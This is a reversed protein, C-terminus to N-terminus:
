HFRAAAGAPVRGYIRGVGHQVGKEYNALLRQRARADEAEEMRRDEAAYDFREKKDVNNPM